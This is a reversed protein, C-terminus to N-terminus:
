SSNSLVVQCMKPRMRNKLKRKKVRLFLLLNLQGSSKKQVHKLRISPCSSRKFCLANKNLKQAQMDIFDSNYGIDVRILFGVSILHADELHSILVNLSLFPM